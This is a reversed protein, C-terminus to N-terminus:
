CLATGLNITNGVVYGTGGTAVVATSVKKTALIMEGVLLAPQRVIPLGGNVPRGRGLVAAHALQAPINDFSIPM